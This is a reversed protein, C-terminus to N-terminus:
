HHDFNKEGARIPFDVVNQKPPLPCTAFTTFACPPNYAKNFDIITHGQDDPKNVYLYRGAGYTETANTADGFIVFYDEGGEDLVDLRVEKGDLEFVLTGPSPQATTQGLVNTIPITRGAAPEFTADVHFQVDVPYREIGSFELLAKSEFDRLRIGYKTDRKIIFWELSGLKLVPPVSDPQFAWIRGVPKEKSTVAIGPGSEFLVKGDKLLFYGLQGPAKGEPFVISNAPSSGLTNIGDSLWFLGALNLWGTPGKLDTIRKAHWSDISATYAAVDTIVGRKDTSCSVAAWVLLCGWVHKNIKM